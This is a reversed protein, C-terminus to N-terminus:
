GSRNKGVLGNRGLSGRYQLPLDLGVPFRISTLRDALAGSSHLGERSKLYDVESQPTAGLGFVSLRRAVAMIGAPAPAAEAASM